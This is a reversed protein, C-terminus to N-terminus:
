GSPKRPGKVGILSGHHLYVPKKSDQYARRQGRWARQPGKWGHGQRSMLESPGASLAKIRLRKAKKGRM